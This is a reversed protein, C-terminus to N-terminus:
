LIEPVEPRLDDQFAILGKAESGRSVFLVTKGKETLQDFKTLLNASIRVKERELWEKTGVRVTSGSILAEVGEGPLENFAALRQLRVHARIAQDAIAEAIPHYSQAEASAALGIFAQNTLGEPVLDTIHPKGATLLGTKGLVITDTDAAAEIAKQDRLILGNARAARVAAWVSLAETLGLAGPCAAVPIAFLVASAVSVSDLLAWAISAILATVLSFIAVHGPLSSGVSALPTDPVPLAEAAVLDERSKLGARAFAFRGLAALSLTIGLPVYWTSPGGSVLDPDTLALAIVSFLFAALTSVAILSSDDPTLHLLRGIGQRYIRWHITMLLAALASAALGNWRRLPELRTTAEPLISPLIETLEPLAALAALALTLLLSLLFSVLSWRSACRATALPDPEVAPKAPASTLGLEEDTM